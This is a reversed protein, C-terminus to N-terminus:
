YASINLDFPLEHDYIQEPAEDSRCIKIMETVRIIDKTPIKSKKFINTDVKSFLACNTHDM